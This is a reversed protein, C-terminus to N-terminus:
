MSDISIIFSLFLFCKFFDLIPGITARFWQASRVHKLLLNRRYGLSTNVVSALDLLVQSVTPISSVADWSSGLKRLELGWSVMEKFKPFLDVKEKVLFDM